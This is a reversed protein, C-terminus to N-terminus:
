SSAEERTAGKRTEPFRWRRLLWESGLLLGIAGYSLLGTYLAWWSVPAWLALGLAVAGNLFFFTCWIKTWLRCWAQPEEELDPEQLRAFKEIMPMAGSRLTSGFAILLLANILVPVFLLFGLEDLISALVLAVVTILPLIALGRLEARRANRMRLLVSPLLIALLVLAVQRPSQRSLGLWVIVPYACLAIGAIGRLVLGLRSSRDSSGEADMETSDSEPRAPAADNM